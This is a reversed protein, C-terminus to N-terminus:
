AEEGEDADETDEQANNGHSVESVEEAKAAEIGSVADLIIADIGKENADKFLGSLVGNVFQKAKDEGYRVALEVAQSISVNAPIDSDFLIEYAAIRIITRSVKSLRDARWGKSYKSIVYDLVELKSIVGFFTQSIYKDLPIERNECAFEYIKVPKDASRFETEFLLTFLIDRAEKRSIQAMINEMRGRM